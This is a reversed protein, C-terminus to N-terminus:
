ARFGRRKQRELAAAYLEAQASSKAIVKQKRTYAKLTHRGLMMAGTSSSKRTEKCGAWDSDTFATLQEAMIRYEFVQGWQRERKLCRALRKLKALSQQNPSSMKQCLENVIFTMDARDQSLFLCRAVQSSYRHHQDQSLPESEEEETVDPTAPTQVSNSNDLGLDKVLVDVHVRNRAKGLAIEQEVNQHEETVWLRHDESKVPYVSTTKREFEMLKMTPGTLVFDDGHTLGSVRNEKHHFLNKSSLGLQFGWNRVHEQWDREWNSAADRTAYMSKKMLGVKGADTGMRDELPLRILVPRQAKAHLYARSVHKHNAAISIIATLAEM